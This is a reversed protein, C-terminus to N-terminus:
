AGAQLLAFFLAPTALEYETTAANWLYFAGNGSWSPDAPKLWATTAQDATPATASVSMVFLGADSLTSLIIDLTPARVSRVGGSTDRLLALFDTAPDYSM